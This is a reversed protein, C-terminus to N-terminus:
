RLLRVTDHDLAAAGFRAAEATNVAESQFRSENIVFIFYGYATERRYGEWAEEVVTGRVNFIGSAIAYDAFETPEAGVRWQRDSAEGHLKRAQEIMAPVIDYGTFRGLHGNERLFSFFDGFGCGLDIVSATPESEFLRLFQRHRQRHSEPGNWDVGQATPGHADLKAAYYTAAESLINPSAEEM